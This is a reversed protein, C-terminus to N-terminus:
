QPRKRAASRGEVDVREFRAQNDADRALKWVEGNTENLLLTDSESARAGSGLQASSFVMFRDPPASVTPAVPAPPAVGLFMAVALLGLGTPYSILVVQYRWRCEALAEQAAVRSREIGTQLRESDGQAAGERLRRGTAENEKHNAADVLWVYCWMGFVTTAVFAVGALGMLLRVLPSGAAVTQEKYFSAGFAIAGSALAVIWTLTTRYWDLYSPLKSQERGEEVSKSALTRLARQVYSSHPM